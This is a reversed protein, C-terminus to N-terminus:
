LAVIPSARRSIWVCFPTLMLLLWGFRAMQWALISWRDAWEFKSDLEQAMRNDEIEKQHLGLKGYTWARLRYHTRADQIPLNAIALNCVEIAKKHQQLGCEYETALLDYANATRKGRPDLRIAMTFDSIIENQARENFRGGPCHYVHMRGIGRFLYARAYKPDLRIAASLDDIEDEVALCVNDCSALARAMYARAYLRELTPHDLMDLDEIVLSVNKPIQELSFIEARIHGELHAWNWHRTTWFLGLVISVFLIITLVRM